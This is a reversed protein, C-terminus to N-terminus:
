DFTLKYVGGAQNTVVLGGDWIGLAEPEFNGTAMPRLDLYSEVNKALYDIVLIGGTALGDTTNGFSLYLKGYRACAGQQSYIFPLIFEDHFNKITVDGAGVSPLDFWCIHSDSPTSWSNETYGFLVGRGNWADIAINPLSFGVALSITQVLTITWSGETGTIRFVYVKSEDMSSIYLLPFPDGATHYTKSFGGSGAHCNAMATLSFVQVNTATSLKFVVITALTNHFQFLYDGFIAGGQRSSIGSSLTGILTHNYIHDAVDIKAGLVAATGTNAFKIRPSINTNAEELSDVRQVLGGTGAITSREASMEAIAEEVDATTLNANDQRSIVFRLYNGNETSNVVKEIDATMWGTDSILTGSQTGYGPKTTIAVAIRYTTYDILRFAIVDGKQVRVAVNVYWRNGDNIAPATMGLEITQETPQGKVLEDLESVRDDVSPVVASTTKVLSWEINLAAGDIITLCLYATNSPVVINQSLGTQLSARATQGGGFAIAQNNAVPPSYSSSLWCWFGQEAAGGVVKLIYTEGEVVPIAIHSQPGSNGNRFWSTAGLSCVQPTYQSLDITEKAGFFGEGIREKLYVGMAASLAKTADDTTLNNVLEYPYDVSAGTNGQPGEPGQPGQPGQPGAAGQVGQEGRAGQPGRFPGCNKYKGDLTDGGEGVYLYLDTGILYGLTDEGVSPLDSISAVAVYGTLNAGGGGLGEIEEKTWSTGNWILLGLCGENITINGFNRYTGAAGALYYAKGEPTTPNTSITAVGLFTYGEGLVDVMENLVDNLIAGTIAQQGNTNISADITAKLASYDAM